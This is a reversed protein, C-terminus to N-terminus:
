VKLLMAFRGRMFGEFRIRTSLLFNLSNMDLSSSSSILFSSSSFCRRAFSFASLVFVM